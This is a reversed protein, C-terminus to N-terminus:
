KWTISCRFGASSLDDGDIYGGEERDINEKEALELVGSEKAIVLFDDTDKESVDRTWEPIDPYEKVNRAALFHSRSLEWEKLSILKGNYKDDCIDKAKGVSLGTIVIGYSKDKTTMSEDHDQISYLHDMIAVKEGNLEGVYAFGTLNNEDLYPHVGRSIRYQEVAVDEALPKLATLAVGYDGQSMAQGAMGLRHLYEVSMYDSFAMIFLQIILATMIAQPAKKLISSWISRERERYASEERPASSIPYENPEVYDAGGFNLDSEEEPFIRKILFTLGGFLLVLVIFIYIYIRDM